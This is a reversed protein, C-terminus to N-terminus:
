DNIEKLNYISQFLDEWSDVITEIKYKDSSKICATSMKNYLNKNTMIKIMTNAYQTTNFPPIIYGNTESEILYKSASTVM